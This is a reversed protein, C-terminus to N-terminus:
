KGAKVMFTTEENEFGYKRYLDHADKTALFGRLRSIEDNIYIADLIKKGVGIKRYNIDVVVDCIYYMTAYDTIVRAFGIQKGTETLFAGYCISHEMSKEITEISRSKAWYTQELLNKVSEIQMNEKGTRIDYQEM